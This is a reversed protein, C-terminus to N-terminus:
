SRSESLYKKLVKEACQLGEEYLATLKKVDTTIRDV